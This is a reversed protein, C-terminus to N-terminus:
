EFVISWLRMSEAMSPALFSNGSQRALFGKKSMPRPDPKCEKAASESPAADIAAISISSFETVVV